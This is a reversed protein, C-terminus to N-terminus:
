VCEFIVICNNGYLIKMARLLLNFDMSVSADGNLIREYVPKGDLSLKVQLRM